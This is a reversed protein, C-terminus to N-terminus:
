SPTTEEVVLSVGEIRVVRVRTGEPLEPGCVRWVTDDINLSGQGQEIPASLIFTRGIYRSGRRNLNEDGETRSRNMAWSRGVLLSALSLAGFLVFMWQWSLDVFLAIAGVLMAAIAFWLFIFGPALIELALLVLGLIWWTYPGLYDILQQM